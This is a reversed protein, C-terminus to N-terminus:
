NDLKANKKKWLYGLCEDQETTDESDLKANKKEVSIWSM